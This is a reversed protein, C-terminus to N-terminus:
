NKLESHSLGYQLRYIGRDVSAAGATRRLSENGSIESRLQELFGVEVAEILMIAECVADPQARLKNEATVTRPGSSPPSSFTLASWATM